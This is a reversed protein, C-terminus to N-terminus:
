KYVKRTRPGRTIAGPIFGRWRIEAYKERWKTSREASGKGAGPLGIDRANSKAM